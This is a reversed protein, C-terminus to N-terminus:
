AYSVLLISDDSIFISSDTWEFTEAVAAPYNGSSNQARGRRDASPLGTGVSNVARVRYSWIDGATLGTHTHSTTTSTLTVADADTTLNKATISYSTVTAGGSLIPASWAIANSLMGDTVTLSIPADPAEVPANAASGYLHYIGMRDSLLPVYVQTGALSTLTEMISDTVLGGGVSDPHWIGLFHGVEHEPTRSNYTNFLPKNFGIYVGNANPTLSGNAIAIFGPNTFTQYGFRLDNSASDATEVFSFNGVDTWKMLASKMWLYHEQSLPGDILPQRTTDAPFDGTANSYTFARGARSSWLNSIDPTDVACFLYGDTKAPLSGTATPGKGTQTSVARRAGVTVDATAPYDDGAVTIVCQFTMTSATYAHPALVSLIRGDTNAVEATDGATQTWAYTRTGVISAANGLNATLEAVGGAEVSVDSIGAGADAVITFFDSTLSSATTGARANTGAGTVSIDCRLILSTNTSVDGSVYSPTTTTANSLTGGGSFISWSYSISDYIGGSVVISFSASTQENFSAPGTVVAAPSTAVPLAPPTVVVRDLTRVTSSWESWDSTLAPANQYSRVRARYDASPRLGTITVSGAYGVDEITTASTDIDEYQLEFGDAEDDDNDLTWRISSSTTPVGSPATPTDLPTPTEVQQAVAFNVVDTVVATTGAAVTAGTGTVTVTCSIAVGSNNDIDGSTYTASVTDSNSLSGTGFSESDIAWAYSITDYTGGVVSLTLVVPDGEAVTDVDSITIAPAVADPLAVALKEVTFTENATTTTAESMLLANIGNGVATVVCGVTVTEDLTVSPATYMAVAESTQGLSGNGAVIEWAYRLFDYTGGTVTLTLPTTSQENVKDVDDVRATPAVAMSLDSVPVETAEFIRLAWTSWAGQVSAVIAAARFRYRRGPVWGENGDRGSYTPETLTTTSLGPDPIWLGTSDNYYQTELAYTVADTVPSWFVRIFDIDGAREVRAFVNDPVGGEAVPFSDGFFKAATPAVLLTGPRNDVSGYTRVFVNRARALGVAYKASDTRGHLEPSIEGSALSSQVVYPM